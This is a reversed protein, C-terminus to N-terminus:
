PSPTVAGYRTSDPRTPRDAWQAPAAPLRLTFCAGGEPRNAAELTGGQAVAHARAIALGLGAGGSTRARDSKAFRNFVVALDAAAIGPGDDSVTTVVSDGSRRARVHALGGGHTAANGLLNALIRGLRRPEALVIADDDVQVDLELQAASGLSRAAAEVAAGVHLHEVHVPDVGTDLRSLELLELVLARLREIDAVILEAPRRANPPLDDIQDALLSASAAMGTLPTRLDHAVDATFQRERENARELQEITQQVEDAMRNFSRALAGFEDEAAPLRTARQGDAIAEAAGAVARIPLLTRRAVSRGVIGALVTTVIWAVACSRTLEALSDKLQQLSFFFWYPSGDDALAAVVLYPHGDVDTQATRVDDDLGGLLPQPIDDAGFGATSSFTRGDAAAVIEAGSRQELDERLRDFSTADLDAPALALAIRAQASSQQRFNRWRYESALLVAFVALLGASVAAVLVFAATLRRRFRAPSRSPM